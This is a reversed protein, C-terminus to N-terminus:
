SSLQQYLVTFWVCQICPLRWLLLQIAAAEKRRLVYVGACKSPVAGLWSHRQGESSNQWWRDELSRRKTGTLLHTARPPDLRSTQQSCGLWGCLHQRPSLCSSSCVGRMWWTVNFGPRWVTVAAEGKGSIALNAERPNKTKKWLPLRPQNRLWLKAM